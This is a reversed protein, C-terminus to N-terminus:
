SHRWRIPGGGASLANLLLGALLAVATAGARAGTETGQDCDDATM